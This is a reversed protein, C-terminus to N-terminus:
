VYALTCFTYETSANSSVESSSFYFLFSSDLDDDDPHQPDVCIEVYSRGGRDIDSIHRIKSFHFAFKTSQGFLDGHFCLYSQTCWCLSLTVVIVFHLVKILNCARLHLCRSQVFSLFSTNSPAQTSRFNAINIYCVVLMGAWGGGALM